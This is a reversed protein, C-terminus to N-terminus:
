SDWLRPEGTDVHVFRGPYHGVGGEGLWMAYDRILRTSVGPLSFDAAKAKIHLSNSAAGPLRSNTQRTRFGSTFRIWGDHGEQMAAQSIASLIWFVRADMQRQERRRWDRMFWNLDSVASIDYGSPSWYTAEIQEGTNANVMKLFPAIGSSIADLNTPTRANSVGPLLIASAAGATALIFSRRSPSRAVKKSPCELVGSLSPISM